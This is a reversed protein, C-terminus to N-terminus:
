AYEVGKTMEDLLAMLVARQEHEELTSLSSEVNSIQTKYDKRISKYELAKFSAQYNALKFREIVGILEAKAKNIANDDWNREAKGSLLSIINPIWNNNSAFEGLRQAFTQLKADSTFVAVNTCQKLLHEDIPLYSTIETKFAKVMEIHSNTIENLITKINDSKIETISKTTFISTIKEFLYNHPDSATKSHLIFDKAAQSLSKTNRTWTSLEAFLTVYEQAIALPTPDGSFNPLAIALENLYATKEQDVKVLQVGVFSSKLMLKIVFEEDPATIFMHENTADNKDFFAFDKLHTMVFALIWISRIGKPVGFPKQSWLDDIENLWVIDGRKKILISASNFLAKLNVDSPQNFGLIGETVTHLEKNKLCSFYLGKEAPFSGAPFNLNEEEFNEAMAILLKKIASNASGSPRSRNVLENKIVPAKNFIHDAISSTISALTKNELSLSDYKWLATKFAKDTAEFISQKAVEIRHNIENKAIFDHTIEKHERLVKNLAILEIAQTKLISFQSQHGLIIHENNDAIAKAIEFLSEEVPLVFWLFTDGSVPSTDLDVIESFNHKGIIKTQAWRMTGTKHYHATALINNAQSIQSTWDVGDKIEEITVSILQNIDIDSGQFVFLADHKQRYIIVTWEELEKVALTVDHETFGRSSFYSILFNRKAFLQHQFGFLTLLAITKTILCHLDSGKQEARYIADQGELWVKSDSSALIIHNLNYQLYDWLLEPHFLALNKSEVNLESPYNHEIFQKFGMKENSALFGFLSRENQSFSRKSIPGLLLSVIPDLPLSNLLPLKRDTQSPFYSLVSSILSDNVQVLKKEVQNTKAISDGILILSEDISPIYGMDRYRGQVKAWDKQASANMAKSYESFAQHLFGILIAPIKSKQIVDALNQFFYLDKNERSQYDLAKGMEDLLIIVGDAKVGKDLTTAILSLCEDDNLQFIDQENFEHELAQLISCTITASPVNLGCVHKVVKWGKKINFRSQFDKEETSSTLKANAYNRVSKKDSLLQTLFLAITSKGTGYPGTITFCRQESKTFDRSITDLVNLATGHLIFSDIFDKYNFADNDLRTSSKYKQSIDIMSSM